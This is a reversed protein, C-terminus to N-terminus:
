DDLDFPANPDLQKCLEFYSLLILRDKAGTRHLKTHKCFYKLQELTCCGLLQGLLLFLWNISRKKESILPKCADVEGCFKCTPLVPDTWASPARNHWEDRQTLVFNFIQQFKEQINYQLDFTKECKKCQVADSTTEIENDLLYQMSHVKARYKTAWRYPPTITHSKAVERTESRAQSPTPNRRVRPLNSSSSSSPDSPPNSPPNNSPPSLSLDLLSDDASNSNKRKM